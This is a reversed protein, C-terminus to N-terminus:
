FRSSVKVAYEDGVAAVMLSQHPRMLSLALFDFSPLCRGSLYPIIRSTHSGWPHKHLPDKQKLHRLHRKHRLSQLIVAGFRLVSGHMTLELRLMRCIEYFPNGPKDEVTLEKISSSNLSETVRDEVKLIWRPAYMHLM